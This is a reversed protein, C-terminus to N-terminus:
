RVEAAVSVRGAAARYLRALAAFYGPMSVERGGNSIGNYQLLRLTGRASEADVTAPSMERLIEIVSVPEANDRYTRNYAYTNGVSYEALDSVVQLVNSASYDSAVLFSAVNALEAASFHIVSM